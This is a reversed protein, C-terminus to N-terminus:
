FVNGTAVCSYMYGDLTGSIPRLLYYNGAKTLSLSGESAPSIFARGGDPNHVNSVISQIATFARPFPPGTIASSRYLAGEAAVVATSGYTRLIRQSCTRNKYSWYGLSNQGEEDSGDGLNIIYWTTANVKHIAGIIVRDADYMYHQKGLDLFGVGGGTWQFCADSPRVTGAGTAPFLRHTGGKEMTIFAWSGAAPFNTMSSTIALADPCEVLEGNVEVAGPIITLVDASVYSVDLGYKMGKIATKFVANISALSSSTSAADAASASTENVKKLLDLLAKDTEESMRTFAREPDELKDIQPRLKTLLTGSFRDM